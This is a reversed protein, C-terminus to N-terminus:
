KTEMENICRRCYNMDDYGVEIETLGNHYDESDKETKYKILVKYIPEHKGCKNCILPITTIDSAVKFETM